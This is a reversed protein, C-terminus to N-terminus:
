GMGMAGGVPLVVAESGAARIEAVFGPLDVGPLVRAAAGPPAFFDEWHCAVVVKPRLAAIIEATYGRRYQRGVACLCLLDAQRGQFNATDYDASDVHVVRLEGWRVWWNFVQGHRLEWARPPWSPPHLIDGPFPVRGLLAKGHRSRLPIAQGAPLTLTEGGECSVVQEEPLGAARAIMATARSGYLTAGTHACVAPADLAHDFHAHGVLVAEAKPVAAHIRPLDPALRGGGLTRWLSPRSIYPDFLLTRQDVELAFGAAGLWRLTNAGQTPGQWYLETPAPSTFLDPISM